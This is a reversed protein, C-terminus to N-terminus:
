TINVTVKITIPAPQPINFFYKIRAVFLCTLYFFFYIFWSWRRWLWSSCCQTLTHTLKRTCSDTNPNTLCSDSLSVFICFCLDSPLFLYKPTLFLNSKVQSPFTEFWLSDFVWYDLGFPIPLVPNSVCIVKRWHHCPLSHVPCNM